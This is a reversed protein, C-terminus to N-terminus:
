EPQLQRLCIIIGSSGHVRFGLGQITSDWYLGLIYRMIGTYGMIATEM